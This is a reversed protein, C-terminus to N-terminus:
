TLRRLETVTEPNVLAALDGPSTGTLVARIVRRMVKLNRTRPLDSVFLVRQPKFPAGLGGTVARSLLEALAAGAEVGAAPVVACVVVEGKVPDPVAVAAADKVKGTALLLAEIEAPGTRKGALKITDDSRGHVFWFGDADRSVWDGHTWVGPFSSWYGEMYRAEDRWLSRTLGICAERMVLEGVEGAPVSSGDEAAIDAGTGPIPGHFSTPKIPFLVNTALIGGVETGGANNMLPGRGKLVYEMIWAWSALDWPEGTSAVARLSSLDYKEAEAAGHAKMLRAITPSLGLMTLRHDRVMRWLRGAEPYDPGGEALLLTAGAMLTAVIQIPGILWGMDSMWIWRDSPKLDFALLYDEGTKVTFGCHTHVTGKPKGTTGSTHIVMVPHEAGVIVPAFPERATAVEDWWLDRGAQMPATRATPVVVVRRVAPAQALAADLTAKMPSPRGRRVTGEATIVAVAGVDSLRSALAAAGFGSFLPLVVGGARAVALFAVVAEPIMPMFLGVVDGPRVGKRVLGAALADVQRALGAYSVERVAGDEAEFVLAPHDGRGAALHRDLLTATTNMRGGVCWRAHAIGASLDRVATFPTEFRVDLFDIMRRWFWDPDSAARAELAPYDELGAFALFRTWNAERRQAETPHWSARAILGADAIPDIQEM